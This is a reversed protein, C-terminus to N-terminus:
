RNYENENLKLLKEKRKYKMSFVGCYVDGEELKVEFSWIWDTQSIGQGGYGLNKDNYGIFIYTKEDIIMPISTTLYNILNKNVGLLELSKKYGSKKEIKWWKM